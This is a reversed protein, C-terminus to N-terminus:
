KCFYSVPWIGAQLDETLPSLQPPLASPLHVLLDPKPTVGPAVAKGNKGGPHVPKSVLGTVWGEQM